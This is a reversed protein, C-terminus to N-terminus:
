IKNMKLIKQIKSLKTAKFPSQNLKTCIKWAVKFKRHNQLKNIIKRM